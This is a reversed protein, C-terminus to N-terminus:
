FSSSSAHRKCAVATCQREQEEQEGAALNLQVCCTVWICRASNTWRVTKKLAEVALPLLEEDLLHSFIDAADDDYEADPDRREFTDLLAIDETGFHCVIRELHFSILPLCAESFVLGNSLQLWHEAYAEAMTEPFTDEMEQLMTIEAEVWVPCCGDVLLYMETYQLRLIAVALLINATWARESASQAAAPPGGAALRHLLGDLWSAAEHIHSHSATDDWDELDGAELSLLLVRHLDDPGDRSATFQSLNTWFIGLHEPNAGVHLQGADVDYYALVCDRSSCQPPVHNWYYGSGFGRYCYSKLKNAPFVVAVFRAGPLVAEQPTAYVRSFDFFRTGRTEWGPRNAPTVSYYPMFVLSAFDRYPIPLTRATVSRLASSSSSCFDAVPMEIVQHHHSM